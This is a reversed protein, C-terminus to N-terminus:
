RHKGDGAEDIADALDREMAALPEDLGSSKTTPLFEAVKMMALKVGDAGRFVAVRCPLVTAALPNAELSERLRVVNCFDYIRCEPDRSDSSNIQHWQMAHRGVARMGRKRAAAILRKSVSPINGRTTRVHMM